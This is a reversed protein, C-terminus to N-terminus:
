LGEGETLEHNSTKTVYLTGLSPLWAGGGKWICDGDVEREKNRLATIELVDFLKRKGLHM